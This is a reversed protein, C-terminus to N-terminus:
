GDVGAGPSNATLGREPSPTFGLRRSITAAAAKLSEATSTEACAELHEPSGLLAVSAVIRRRHDFIPAALATVGPVLDGAIIAVGHERTQTLIADVAPARSTSAQERNRGPRREKAILGATDPAPLYAAFVRGVASRLIPLTSGVRVNMFIPRNSEEIRVIVPGSASWVALVATESTADRIQALFESAVRVVDMAHVGALGLAIAAAGISYRGSDSDQAVLDTRTLSVLYRHVKGASMGSRQALEKLQMPGAAQTLAALIRSAIEVSQIGLRESKRQKAKTM